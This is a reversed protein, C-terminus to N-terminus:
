INLFGIGQTIPPFCAISLFEFWWVLAVCHLAVCPLPLAVCAVCHINIDKAQITTWLMLANFYHVLM